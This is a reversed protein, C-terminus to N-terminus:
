NGIYELFVNVTGAAAADTTAIVPKIWKGVEVPLLLRGIVDGEDPAYAGDYAIVLSPKEAPAAFSGDETACELYTLTFTKTDAIAVDGDAATVCIALRGNTGDVRHPTESTDSTNAPLTQGEEFVQDDFILKHNYM